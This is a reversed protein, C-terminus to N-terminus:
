KKVAENFEKLAEKATYQMNSIASFSYRTKTRLIIRMADAMKGAMERWRDRDKEMATYQVAGDHYKIVTKGHRESQKELEAKLADCESELAKIRAPHHCQCDCDFAHDERKDNSKCENCFEEIGNTNADFSM